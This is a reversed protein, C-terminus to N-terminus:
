FAEYVSFSYLNRWDVYFSVMNDYIQKEINDVGGRIFNLVVPHLIYIYLTCKGINELVISKKFSIYKKFLIIFYLVGCVNVLITLIINKQYMYHMLFSAFFCGSVICFATKSFVKQTSYFLAGLYYFFPYYLIRDVLKINTTIFVRSIIMAVVILLVITTNGKTRYDLTAILASVFFLIYIFWLFEMPDIFMMLLDYLNVGVTVYNAFITKGLWVLPAFFMYPVFLDLFKKFVFGKLWGKKAADKRDKIAYIYGAAAFFLPMHFSYIFVNTFNWFENNVQLGILTREITHGLVVCLIAFGKLRDLWIIRGEM